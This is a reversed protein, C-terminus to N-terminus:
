VNAPSYTNLNQCAAFEGCWDPKAYACTFNSDVFCCMREECLNACAYYGGSATIKEHSCTANVNGLDGGGGEGGGVDGKNMHPSSLCAVIYDRCSDKHSKRCNSTDDPPLFCCAAPRCLDECKKKNGKVASCAWQLDSNLNNFKEVKQPLTTTTAVKNRDNDNNKDSSSFVLILGITLVIVSVIFVVAALARRRTGQRLISKPKVEYHGMEGFRM